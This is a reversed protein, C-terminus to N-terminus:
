RIRNRRMGRKITIKQTITRIDREREKISARRDRKIRAHAAMTNRLRKIVSPMCTQSGKGKPLIHVLPLELLQGLSNLLGQRMIAKKNLGLLNVGGQDQHSGCISITSRAIHLMHMIPDQLGEHGLPEVSGPKSNPDADLVGRVMALGKEHIM